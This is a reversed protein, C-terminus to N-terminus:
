EDKDEEKEDKQEPEPEPEPESRPDIANNLWDEARSLQSEKKPDINTM